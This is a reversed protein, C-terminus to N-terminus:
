FEKLLANVADIVVDPANVLIAHDGQAVVVRKGRTSLQALQEQPDMRNPDDKYETDDTRASSLVVLPIDGLSGVHHAQAFSEDLAEQLHATFNKPEHL